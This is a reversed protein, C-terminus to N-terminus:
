KPDDNLEFKIDAQPDTECHLSVKVRHDSKLPFLCIHTIYLCQLNQFLGLHKCLDM